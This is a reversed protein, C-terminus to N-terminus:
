PTPDPGGFIKMIITSGAYHSHLNIGIMGNADHLGYWSLSVDIHFYSLIIVRFSKFRARV